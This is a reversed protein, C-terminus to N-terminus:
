VSRFIYKEVFIALILFLIEDHVRGFLSLSESNLIHRAPILSLHLIVTLCEVAELLQLGSTFVIKTYKLRDIAEQLAYIYIRKGVIIRNANRLVNEAYRESINNEKRTCSGRFNNCGILNQM